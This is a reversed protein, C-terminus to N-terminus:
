FLNLPTSSRSEHGAFDMLLAFKGKRGEFFLAGHLYSLMGLSRQWLYLRSFLKVKQASLVLMVAYVNGFFNGGSTLSMQSEDSDSESEFLSKDSMSLSSELLFRDEAGFVLSRSM